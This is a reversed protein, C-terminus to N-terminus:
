LTVQDCMSMTELRVVHIDDESFVTKFAAVVEKWNLLGRYRQTQRDVLVIKLRDRKQPVSLCKGGIVRRIKKQVQHCFPSSFAAQGVKNQHHAYTHKKGKVYRYGCSRDTGLVCYNAYVKPIGEASPKEGTIVTVNAVKFFFSNFIQSFFFLVNCHSAIAAQLMSLTTTADNLLISYIQFLDFDFFCYNVERLRDMIYTFRPTGLSQLYVAARGRGEIASFIATMTQSLLHWLNKHDDAFTYVAVDFHPLPSSNLEVNGHSSVPLKFWNGYADAHELFYNNV